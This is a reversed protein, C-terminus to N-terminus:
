SLCPFVAFDKSHAKSARRYAKALQRNHYKKNQLAGPSCLHCHQCESGRFCSGPRWFWACPKCLGHVHLSSGVSWTAGGEGAESGSILERELSSHLSSCTSLREVSREHSSWDSADKCYSGHVFGPPINSADAAFVTSTGISCAKMSLEPASACKRIETKKKAPLYELFTNHECLHFDMV